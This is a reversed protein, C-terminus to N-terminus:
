GGAIDLVQEIVLNSQDWVVADMGTGDAIVSRTSSSLGEYFDLGEQWFENVAEAAEPGAGDVFNSSLFVADPDQEIVVMPTEGFGDLGASVDPALDLWPPHGFDPLLDAYFDPFGVPMPDILVVGDVDDRGEAFLRTSHVGDGAAVLLFPGDIGGDIIADALATARQRPTAEGEVYGNVCTQYGLNSLEAQIVSFSGYDIWDYPELVITPGGAEGAGTCLLRHPFRNWDDAVTPSTEILGGDTDLRVLAGRQYLTVWLADDAVVLGGTKGPMPYRRQEGTQPDIRIVLHDTSSTVWLYGDFEILDLLGFTLSAFAGFEGTEPDFVNLNTGWPHDGDLLFLRGDAEAVQRIGSGSMTDVERETPIVIEGIEGDGSLSSILDTVPDNVWLYGLGEGGKLEGPVTTVIVGESSIRYVEGQDTGVWLSDGLWNAWGPVAGISITLDVAGAQPDFRLVEGGNDPSMLWVQGDGAVVGEVRADIPYTAGIEGTPASVRQLVNQLTTMVWITDGAIDMVQLGSSALALAEEVGPHAALYDLDPSFVSPQERFLIPLSFAMVVAFAAVAFLWPRQFGARAPRLPTSMGTREDVKAKIRARDAEARAAPDAQKLLEIM